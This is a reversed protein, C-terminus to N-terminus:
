FVCLEGIDIYLIQAAALEERAKMQVARRLHVFYIDREVFRMSSLQFELFDSLINSLTAKLSSYDSGPLSAAQYFAKYSTQSCSFIPVHVNNCIHTHSCTHM